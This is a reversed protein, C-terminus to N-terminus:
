VQIDSWRIGSVATSILTLISYMDYTSCKKYTLLFTGIGIIVIIFFSKFSVPENNILFSSLLIFIPSSSKIMTYLALSVNQLCITSLIIDLMDMITCPLINLGLQWKNKIKNQLEDVHEYKVITNENSLHESEIIATENSLPQRM